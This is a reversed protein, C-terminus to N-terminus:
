SVTTLPPEVVIRLEALAAAPTTLYVLGDYIGATLGSTAQENQRDAQQPNVVGLLYANSKANLSAHLSQGLEIVQKDTPAFSGAERRESPQPVDTIAPSRASLWIRPSEPLNNSRLRPDIRIYVPGPLTHTGGAAAAFLMFIVPIRDPTDDIRNSGILAWVDDVSDMAAVMSDAVGQAMENADLNQDSRLRRSFSSWLRLNRQAIGQATSGSDELFRGVRDWALAEPNDETM